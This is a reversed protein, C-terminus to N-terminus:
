QELSKLFMVYLLDTYEGLNSINVANWFTLAHNYDEDSISQSTLKNYFKSSDPLKTDNYRDWSDIFGYCYVGKKCVLNFLYDDSFFKQLNRFDETKM